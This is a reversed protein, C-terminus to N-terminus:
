DIVAVEEQNGQKASALGEIEEVDVIVGLAGGQLEKLLALARQVEGVHAPIEVAVRRHPVGADRVMMRRSNRQQLRRRQHAHIECIAIVGPGGEYRVVWIQPWRDDIQNKYSGRIRKRNLQM